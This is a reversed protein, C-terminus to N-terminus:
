FIFLKEVAKQVYEIPQKALFMWKEQPNFGNNIQNYMDLQSQYLENLTGDKFTQSPMSQIEHHNIINKVIDEQTIKLLKVNNM